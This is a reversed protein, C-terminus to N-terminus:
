HRMILSNVGNAPKNIVSRRPLQSLPTQRVAKDDDNHKQPLVFATSMKADVTNDRKDHKVISETTAKVANDITQAIHEIREVREVQKANSVTTGITHDSESSTHHKVTKTTLDPKNNVTAIRDNYEKKTLYDASLKSSIRNNLNGVAEEVTKSILSKLANETKSCIEVAHSNAVDLTQKSKRDIDSSATATITSTLLPVIERNIKDVLENTIEEKLERKLDDKLERKLDNRVTLLRDNIMDSMENILEDRIGTQLTDSIRRDIVNKIHDDTLLAKIDDTVAAPSQPRIKNYIRPNSATFRHIPCDIM